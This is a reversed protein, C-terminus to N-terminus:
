RVKIFSIGNVLLEKRMLVNVVAGGESTSSESLYDLIIM